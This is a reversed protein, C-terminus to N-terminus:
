TLKLQQQLQQARHHALWQRLLIVRHRASASAEGGRQGLPAESLYLPRDHQYHVIVGQQEAPSVQLWPDTLLQEMRPRRNELRFISRLFQKGAESVRPSPKSHALRPSYDVVPTGWVQQYIQRTLEERDRGQFPYAGYLLVYTIVGLSWVDYKATYRSNRKTLEPPMYYPTGVKASLRQGTKLHIAAEEKGNDERTQMDSYM